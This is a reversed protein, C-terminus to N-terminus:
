GRGAAAEDARNRGSLRILEEHLEFWVTHYSDKLPHAMMDNQGAEIARLAAELREWYRVLRPEAQATRIIIPEVDVHISTRLRAVVEADYAADTHDNPIETGGVFRMQWDGVVTKFAENVEHFRGMEPEILHGIRAAALRYWEGVDDRLSPAPLVTGNPMPQAAGEDVLAALVPEVEIESVGLVGAITAANGMGKLALARGVTDVAVTEQYLSQAAVDTQDSVNEVAHDQEALWSNLIAVEPVETEQGVSVGLLFEGSSGDITVETGVDILHGDICIRTPEIELGAVGVVAPIGWGRAVVAAHSVLGGLATVIGTAAAMGAVDSPSTERRALIVSEGRGAAALTADIETHLAGSVRGPSAAIGTALLTLASDDAHAVLNIPPDNLLDAVRELAEARSLPFAPDDAMEIAMRLAARASRKGKRVQLLWFVGDEITFEIDVLDGLDHELITAAQQLALAPEPWHENLAAISLPRHTGDVVDEGQARALFDGTLVAEGTSPDRSFAVGTGSNDGLNGFTMMQVTAATGLDDAIGEMQRYTRARDGNWSQFVARVSERLQEMPDAPVVLENAALDAVFAITADALDGDSLARGDDSGFHRSAADHLFAEPARLVVAAYSRVFRRFTDWAFRHGLTGALGRAVDATMGVNLVTDMMGPMSVPAGSRVSVLLTREPSGLGRGTAAMLDGLGGGLAADLELSWGRRLFQDCATTTLTFGPPVPLDLETMRALSAGKGGLLNTRETSDLRAGDSFSLALQDIM